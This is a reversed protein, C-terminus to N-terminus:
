CLRTKCCPPLSAPQGAPRGALQDASKQGIGVITSLSLTPQAHHCNYCLYSHKAQYICMIGLPTYILWVVALHASILNYICCRCGAKSTFHSPSRIRTVQITCIITTVHACTSQRIHTGEAQPVITCMDPM